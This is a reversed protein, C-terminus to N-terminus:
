YEIRNMKNPRYKFNYMLNNTWKNSPALLEQQVVFVMFEKFVELLQNPNLDELECGVSPYWKRNMCRAIPERVAKRDSLLKGNKFLKKPVYHDYPPGNEDIYWADTILRVKGFAIPVVSAGNMNGIWFAFNANLWVDMFPSKISSHAYDFAEFEDPLKVFNRSGNRVVLGGANTVAKCMLNYNLVSADRAQAFKQLGNKPGRIHLLSFWHIKRGLHKSLIEMGKANEEETLALKFEQSITYEPFLQESGAACSSETRYFGTATRSVNLFDCESLNANKITSDEAFRIEIPSRRCILDLLYQNASTGGPLVVTRGPDHQRYFNLYLFLFGLHGFHSTFSPLIRINSETNPQHSNYLYGKLNDLEQTLRDENAHWWYFGFKSELESRSLTLSDKYNAQFTFNDPNENKTFIKKLYSDREILEIIKGDKTKRYIRSMQKETLINTICYVEVLRSSFNKLLNTFLSYFMIKFAWKHLNEITYAFGKPWSNILQMYTSIYAEKNLLWKIRQLIKIINIQHPVKM